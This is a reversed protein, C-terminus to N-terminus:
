KIMQLEIEIILNSKKSTDIVWLYEEVFNKEVNQNSKFKNYQIKYLKVMGKKLLIKQFEEISM